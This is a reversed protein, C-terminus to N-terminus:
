NVVACEYAAVAGGIGQILMQAAIVTLLLGMLRTVVKIVASGNEFQVVDGDLQFINSPGFQNLIEDKTM